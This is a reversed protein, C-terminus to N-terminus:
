VRVGASTLFDGKRHDAEIEPGGGVEDVAVLGVEGVGRGEDRFAEEGAGGKGCAFSWVGWPLSAHRAKSFPGRFQM